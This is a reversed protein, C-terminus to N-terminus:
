WPDEPVAQLAIRYEVEAKEYDGAATHEDGRALHREM